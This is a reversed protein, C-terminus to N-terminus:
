QYENENGGNDAKEIIIKDAVLLVKVSDGRRIGLNTAKSLDLLITLSHEGVIAQVQDAGSDYLRGRGSCLRCSTMRRRSGRRTLLTQKTM